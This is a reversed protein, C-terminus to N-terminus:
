REMGDGDLRLNSSWANGSGAVAQGRKRRACQTGRNVAITAQRSSPMQDWKM